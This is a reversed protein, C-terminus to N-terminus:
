EEFGILNGATWWGQIGLLKYRIDGFLPAADIAEVTMFPSLQCRNKFKVKDGIKFM